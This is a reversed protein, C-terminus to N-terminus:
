YSFLLLWPNLVIPFLFHCTCMIALPLIVGWASIGIRWDEPVFPLSFVIMTATALLCFLMVPWFRKWIRPVEQFFNSREVEKKTAGWTINYSFLHAFIATNIHIPLGGFFFFFFPVWKMNEVFSSLLDNLGLRYELITYGVNGLGPFVITCALWIEFSHMYYGDVDMMLGLLFYNLIGLVAAGAIGYYSFMYSMMSLKYHIPASSWVFNRLQKTIPGKYWWEILPNFMLENCGYAYKQWRNLEDEVTLSVGEQFGGKSYTAWRIIYGKLQLRLAM